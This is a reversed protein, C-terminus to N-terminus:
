SNEQLHSRQKYIDKNFLHVYKTDRPERVTKINKYLLKDSKKLVGDKNGLTNKSNMPKRAFYFHYTIM